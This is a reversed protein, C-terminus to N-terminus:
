FRLLQVHCCRWCKSRAKKQWDQISRFIHFINNFTNLPYGISVIRIVGKSM